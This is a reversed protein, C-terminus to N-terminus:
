EEWLIRLADTRNEGHVGLKAKPSTTTCRLPGVKRSDTRWGSWRPRWPLRSICCHASTQSLDSRPNEAHIRGEFAHDIRAIEIQKLPFPNGAAVQLQWEVLGQRTIVETVPHEVHLRTNRRVGHFHDAGRSQGNVQMEM